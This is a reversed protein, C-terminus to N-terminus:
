IKIRAIKFIHKIFIESLLFWVVISKLLIIDFTVFFRNSFFCFFILPYFFLLLIYKMPSKGYGCCCNIYLREIIGGMFFSLGIVGILGYDYFFTAFTTYVNGVMHGNAFRYVFGSEGGMASNMGLVRIFDIVGSLTRNDWFRASRYGKQLWTNLNLIPAGLYISITEKMTLVERGIFTGIYTFIYAAFSGILIVVVIHIFKFSRRKGLKYRYFLVLMLFVGLLLEIISGREGALIPFIASISFCILLPIELKKNVSYNNVIIYAWIYASRRCIFYLQNLLGPFRIPADTFSAQRFLTIANFFNAGTVSILYRAVLIFVFCELCTWLYILVKNIEIYEIDYQRIDGYKKIKRSLISGLIFSFVGAIIVVATMGKYQVDWYSRNMVLNLTSVIFAICFLCSPAFIDKKFWCYSIFLLAFLAVLQIYIM